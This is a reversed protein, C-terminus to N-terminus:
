DAAAACAQEWMARLAAGFDRGFGAGDLLPSARLRERMGERLYSLRQPDEALSQCRAVYDGTGSAILEPLGATRLISAGMRGPHTHGELSVVPVGMWLAECTTTAGNYPFSDLGIDVQHYVELHSVTGKEWPMLILRAPDISNGCLSQRMREQTDKDDLGKCKILLRADDSEELLRSWVAMAAPSLKALNNFSGFTIYGNREFAPKNVPPADPDPNYCFYSNPLRIPKETDVSTLDHPDVHWDTIRFDITPMGSITPYGLYSAQVPAPRRAFLFNRTGGTHGALDILIDISDDRIMQGSDGDPVGAIRRWGAALPKLRRTVDDEVWANSYAHVEFQERDLHRLIPELFYAVSHRRLDASVIGIRLKRQPDRDVKHDLQSPLGDRLRASWSRHERELQQQDDCVYCLDLLVNSSGGLGSADRDRVARHVALAEEVRGVSLLLNGYNIQGQDHEPALAFVREFTRMADGARGLQHQAHGLNSLATVSDPRIGLGYELLQAGGALNGHDIMVAGLSFFTEPDDPRIEMAKRFCELMREMEGLGAVALGMGVWADAHEADVDLARQMWEAARAHNDHVLALRGLNFLPEPYDPKVQLAREFCETARRDQNLDILAAGLNNHAEHMDPALEIAREFSAVAAIWDDNKRQVNGLNVWAMVNAADVAIAQEFATAADRHRELAKLALGQGVRVDARQPARAAANEYAKLAEEHRGDARLVAALVEHGAAAEPRAKIARDALKRAEEFHGTQMGIQALLCLPEPLDPVLDLIARYLYEAQALSGNVHYQRAQEFTQKLLLQTEDDMPHGAIVAQGTNKAM